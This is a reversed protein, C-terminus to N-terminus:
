MPRIGMSAAFIRGPNEPPGLAALQTALAASQRPTLAHASPTRLEARAIGRADSRLTLSRGSGQSRGLAALMGWSATVVVAQSALPQMSDPSLTEVTLLVPRGAYAIRSSLRASM